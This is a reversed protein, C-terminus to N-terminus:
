EADHVQRVAIELVKRLKHFMRRYIAAQLAIFINIVGREIDDLVIFLIELQKGLIPNSQFGINVSPAAEQKM